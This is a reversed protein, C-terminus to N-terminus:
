GTKNPNGSGDTAGSRLHIAETVQRIDGYESLVPAKYAKKSEASSKANVGNKEPANM